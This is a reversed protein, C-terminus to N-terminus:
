ARKRRRLAGMAGLGAIMLWGAAPLPVESSVGPLPSGPDAGNITLVSKSLTLLWNGSNTADIDVRVQLGNAIEDYFDSSITFEAFSFQDNVGTMAGLLVWMSNTADWIEINDVEGNIGDVYDVDYGSVYLSASSIPDTLAGHTWGWDMTMNRYYPNTLFSTGEPLFFNDVFSTTSDVTDSAGLAFASTASVAVVAAAALTKLLTM